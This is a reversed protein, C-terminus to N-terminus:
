SVRSLKWYEKLYAEAMAKSSYCSQVRHKAKDVIKRSLLRNSLLKEVANAMEGPNGPNVLLGAEGYDLTEPIGGVATAVIPVESHMSELFTIPLGETISSILFVDFCRILRAANSLYGPLLVYENLRLEQIKRELSKRCDGEGIIVLRVNLCRNILISLVDILNQHAKEPSLRGISGLTFGRQCFEIITKDLKNFPQNTLNPPQFLSAGSSIPIGNNVVHLNVGSINKLRPNSLMGRNVLVVSDIYKLSHADLWEYARMKSYGNTSTWGHLTAILPLKRVNRPIFGFLINGKYGHSHLIDFGSRQAYRLCRLHGPSTRGQFADPVKSSSLRTEQGRGRAAKRDIGKDGISAIVPRM